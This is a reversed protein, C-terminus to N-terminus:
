RRQRCGCARDVPTLAIRLLARVIPAPDTRSQNTLVAIAVGQEPLYRVASRFGLLRGSHGVRPAGDIEVVSSALATRCARSSPPRGASTTSCRAVLYSPLLVEGGYLARAWRALDSATSAFGGAGGAATVVSTFPM